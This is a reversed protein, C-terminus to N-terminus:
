SRLKLSNYQSVCDLSSRDSKFAYMNHLFFNNQVIPSLILISVPPSLKKLVDHSNLFRGQQSTNLSSPLYYDPIQIKM